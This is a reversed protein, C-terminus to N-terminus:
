NQEEPVRVIWARCARTAQVLLYLVSPGFNGLVAASQVRVTTFWDAYWIWLYDFVFYNLTVSATFIVALERRTRDRAVAAFPVLVVLYWPQFWLTAVALYAFLIDFCAEALSEIRSGVAWTRWLTFILFADYAVLKAIQSAQAVGSDQLIFNLLAPASATFLDGRRLAGITMPGQWFPWYFLLALVGSGLLGFVVARFARSSWQQARLWSLIYAPLLVLTIFKVLVSAMLAPLSLHSKQRSLFYIGLIAFFAMAIDNHGNAVTEITLLPNWGVFLM